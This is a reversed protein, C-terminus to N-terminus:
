LTHNKGEEKRPLPWLHLKLHQWSRPSISLSNDSLSPFPLYSSSRVPLVQLCARFVPTGLPVQLVIWGISLGIIDICLAFMVFVSYVEVKEEM